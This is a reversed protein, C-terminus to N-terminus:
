KIRKDTECYLKGEGGQVSMSKSSFYLYMRNGMHINQAKDFLSLDTFYLGTIDYDDGVYKGNLTRKEILPYPHEQNVKLSNNAFSMIPFANWFYEGKKSFLNVSIDFEGEALSMAMVHCYSLKRDGYYNKTEPARSREWREAAITSLNSNLYIKEVRSIKDKQLSLFILSNENALLAINFGDKLYVNFGIIHQGNKILGLDKWFRYWSAPVDVTKSADSSNLFLSFQSTNYKPSKKTDYSVQPDSPADSKAQTDGGGDSRVGGKIYLNKPDIKKKSDTNDINIKSDTNDIHIRVAIRLPLIIKLFEQESDSFVSDTGNEVASLITKLSEVDSEYYAAMIQSYYTGIASQIFTRCQKIEAPGLQVIQIFEDCSRM